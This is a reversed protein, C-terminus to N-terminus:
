SVHDFRTKEDLLFSDLFRMHYRGVENDEQIPADYPENPLKRVFGGHLLSGLIRASMVAEIQEPAM